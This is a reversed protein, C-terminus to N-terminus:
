KSPGSPEVILAFRSVIVVGEHQERQRRYILQAIIGLNPALDFRQERKDVAVQSRRMAAENLSNGSHHRASLIRLHM